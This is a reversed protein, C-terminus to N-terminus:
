GKAHNREEGKIFRGQRVRNKVVELKVTMLVSLSQSGLLHAIDTLVIGCDAAEMKAEHHDGNAIAEALEGVEECLKKVRSALDRRWHGDAFEIIEEEIQTM